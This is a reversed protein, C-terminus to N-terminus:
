GSFLIFCLFHPFFRPLVRLKQRESNANTEKKREVWELQKNQCRWRFFTLSFICVIPEGSFLCWVFEIAFIYTYIHFTFHLSTFFFSTFKGWLFSLSFFLYFIFHSAAIALVLSFFYQRFFAGGVGGEYYCLSKIMDYDYHLTVFYFLMCDRNIGDDRVCCWMECMFM